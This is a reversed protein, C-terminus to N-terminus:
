RPSSKSTTSKMSLMFGAIRLMTNRMWISIPNKMVHMKAAKNSEEVAKKTRAFMQSEYEAIISPWDANKNPAGLLSTLLRADELVNNGGLGRDPPMSHAADGLLTVRGSPMMPFQSVKPFETTRLFWSDRLDNPKTQHILKRLSDHFGKKDVLEQCHKLLQERNTAHAGRQYWSAKHDDIKESIGWFVTPTRDKRESFCVGISYGYRSLFRVFGDRNLPLLNNWEPTREIEGGLAVLGSEFVKPLSRASALRMLERVKSAGGDCGVLLDGTTSSGDEFHAEVNNEHVRFSVLRKNWEVNIGDLLVRRLEARLFQVVAGEGLPVKLLPKMQSTAYMFSDGVDAIKAENLRQFKDNSLLEKLAALGMSRISIRYGQERSQPDQDREFVVVSFGARTLGQALALGGLGAGVIIIKQNSM